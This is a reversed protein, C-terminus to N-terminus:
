DHSSWREFDDYNDDDVICKIPNRLDFAFVGLVSKGNVSYNGQLLTVDGPHKQAVDIFDYIDSILMLKIDM